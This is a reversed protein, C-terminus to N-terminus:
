KVIITLHANQAHQPSIAVGVTSPPLEFRALPLCVYNAREVDGRAM